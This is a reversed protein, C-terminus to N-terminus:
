IKLLDFPYYVVFEEKSYYFKSNPIFLFFRYWCNYLLLFFCICDITRLRTIKFNERYISYWIGLTLWDQGLFLSCWDEVRLFIMANSEERIWDMVVISTSWNDAILILDICFVARKFQGRLWGVNRRQESASEIELYQGYTDTCAARLRTVDGDEFLIGCFRSRTNINTFWERPIKMKRKLTEGDIM